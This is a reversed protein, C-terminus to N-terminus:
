KTQYNLTKVEELENDSKRLHTHFRNNDGVNNQKRVKFMQLPHLFNDM